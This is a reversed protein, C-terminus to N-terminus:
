ALSFAEIRETLAEINVSWPKHHTKFDKDVAKGVFIGFRLGCSSFLCLHAHIWHPESEIDIVKAGPHCFVVNFMGSGSPGVVMSASSFIRVQEPVSLREPNVIQFAMERLREVLEAENRLARPSGRQSQSLRSVYIRTGSEQPIGFKGRMRAYLALSEADLFAQNNRISPVIVRHLEYIENQPDHQIVRNEPVGVIELYERFTPQGAWVLFKVSEDISFRKLTELKPLARFLWSGYNSPEASSLLVTTGPIRKVQRGRFDLIFSKSTELRRLGTEENLPDPMALADLFESRRHDGPISDDNFFRGDNLLITRFGVVRANRARAVFAPPSLFSDQALGSFLGVNDPDDLFEPIRREFPRPVGPPEVFVDAEVGNEAIFDAARPLDLVDHYTYETPAHSRDDMVKM